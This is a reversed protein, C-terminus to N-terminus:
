SKFFMLVNKKVNTQTWTCTCTDSHPGLPWLLPIRAGTDRVGGPGEPGGRGGGGGTGRGKEGLGETKSRAARRDRDGEMEGETREERGGERGEERGGERGGERIDRDGEGDRHGRGRQRVSKNM